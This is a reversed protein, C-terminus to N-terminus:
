EGDIIIDSSNSSNITVVTDVTQELITPLKKVSVTSDNDQGDIDQKALFEEVLRLNNALRQDNPAAKIALKSYELCDKYLALNWCSIAALDFPKWSWAEETCTYDMPHKTISLAAKASKLCKSWDKIDYYHQALNVHPERHTPVEISAMKLWFVKNDPDCWALNILAQGREIKDWSMGLFEKYTEVAETPYGQYMYERGLYAKIRSDHPWERASKILLDLDRKKSKSDPYQYIKVDDTFVQKEEICCGLGEHTWSLWYYGDRSHIRDSYWQRGPVTNAPADLWNWVYIYRLKTTEGKVWSKEIGDRWGPQLREDMDLRICVDTDEPLLSLAVNFMMDFRFPMIRVDVVNVGLELLRERTGDTSGTEAVCVYDAEKCSEFWADTHKMENKAAAYIGIKLKSM